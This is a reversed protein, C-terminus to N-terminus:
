EGFFCFMGQGSVFRRGSKQGANKAGQVDGGGPLAHALQPSLGRPVAEAGGGGGGGEETDYYHLGRQAGGGGGGVEESVHDVGGGGGGRHPPSRREERRQENRREGGAHPSPETHGLSQEVRQKGNQPSAHEQPAAGVLGRLVEEPLVAELSAFGFGRLLTKTFLSAEAERLDAFETNDGNEMNFHVDGWYSFFMEQTIKFDETTQESAFPGSTAKRQREVSAEYYRQIEQVFDYPTVEKSLISPLNTPDFRELFGNFLLIGSRPTIRHWIEKLLASHVLPPRPALHQTFADVDICRDAYYFDDDDEEIHDTNQKKRKVKKKRVPEAFHNFLVEIEIDPFRVARVMERIVEAFSFVDLFNKELLGHGFDAQTIREALVLNKASALVRLAPLIHPQGDLKFQSHLLENRLKDTLDAIDERSVLPPTQQLIHTLSLISTADDQQLAEFLTENEGDSLGSGFTRMGFLFRALDYLPVKNAKRRGGGVKEFVRKLGVGGSHERHPDEVSDRLKLLIKNIIAEPTKKRKSLHKVFEGMSVAGDKQLQAFLFLIDSPTLELHVAVKFLYKNFLSASLKVSDIPNEFDIGYFIRPLDLGSKRLNARIKKFLDELQQHSCSLRGRVAALFEDMDVLADDDYDHIRFLVEVETASLQIGADRLIEAFESSGVKAQRPIDLAYLADQLYPHGDEGRQMLCQKLKRHTKLIFPRHRLAEGVDGPM